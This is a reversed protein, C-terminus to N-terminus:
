MPAQWYRGSKGKGIDERLFSGKKELLKKIEAYLYGRSFTFNIFGPGAVEIKEFLAKDRISGVLEEAIKRPAKKLKAALSMAMPTALDGMSDKRPVEIEIAPIDELGLDKLAKGIIELLYKKM